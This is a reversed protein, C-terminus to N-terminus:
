NMPTKASAQRDQSNLRIFDQPTRGVLRKFTRYFHSLDGFGSEMASGLIDRTEVMRRKSFEIRRQTVYQTVTTGKYRRFNETFARYCLGAKDALTKIQLPSTFHDDLEAVTSIFAASVQRARQTPQADFMRRVLIMLQMALALAAADCGIRSQGLEMILTRFLRRYESVAYSNPVRFSKGLPMLESVSRWTQQLISASELSTPGVCLVSLTMPAGSRDVLRHPALRPVRFIEGDGIQVSGSPQILEGYGSEVLCFKDFDHVSLPM